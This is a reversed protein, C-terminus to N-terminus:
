EVDRVYLVVPIRDRLEVDFKHTLLTRAQEAPPRDFPHTVSHHVTSLFGVGQDLRITCRRGDSWTLTLQRHHQTRERALVNFSSDADLQRLLLEAVPRAEGAYAWDDSVRSPNRRGEYGPHATTVQIRTSASLGGAAGHLGRLLEFLIRLTLPSRLYRDQYHVQALAPGSQIREMLRPVRATILTWLRRGVESIDHRFSLPVAVERFTGQPDTRIQSAPVEAPLRAASAGRVAICRERPTAAAWDEGLTLSSPDTVAWRVAQGEGGVEGIAEAILTPVAPDAHDGDLLHLRTGTAELLNALSNAVDPTLRALLRRPLILRTRISRSENWRLLDFRLPWTPPDWVTPDGGVYLRIENIDIRQTERRLALLLPDYELASSSGFFRLETPLTLGDLVEQSLFDYARRHDLYDAEFQTDFSLLCGHCASDCSRPCRLIERARQLLSPLAPAAQAVYGAGGEATDFLFLSYLAEGTRSRGPAAAYGIERDDVGLSQALAQRLAVALSLATTPDAVPQRTTPNWLQLEFVDTLASSGFFQHRKIAWISGNGSCRSHGDWEKGGRLRYHNRLEEPLEGHEVESATRGCRLCVAYGRRSRGGSSQFIHGESSYRYSGAESRPLDCLPTSGASIWSPQPAIYVSQDLHNHPRYTLDVAFGAPKFYPRLVFAPEQEGCAPCADPRIAHDGTAGCGNCRWACRFSQIEPEHDLDDPLAQWNLTVGASRYVQKDLVVDAGPAYERIAQPLERTPYGRSRFRSERGGEQPASPDRQRTEERRLQELTTYIFPVLGMPFGYGPLFGLAALEKLLYERSLRDLQREVALYGAPKREATAKAGLQSRQADLARWEELWRHEVRALSEAARELLYAQPQGDLCSRACLQALGRTLREDQARAPDLLWSHLQEVPSASAGRAVFFWGTQLQGQHRHGLEMLFRNLVLSNIHRQVIRESQLSVHPIHIPSTVPWLPNSFVAEGHPTARCMTLSLSATEGRRGARGARQLFNSPGPPANNMAVATLGGIDVGMEMTTSCSLVNLRGAKFEHEAERLRDSALQASHEAVLFLPSQAAIRDTFETWLGEDRARQVTPDSDLWARIEASALKRGSEDAGFPHRLRPMSLTRCRGLELRLNPTLYPTLGLFTTSLARLTVPCLNVQDLACIECDELRLLYGQQERRLIRLSLLDEWAARLLGNVESRAEADDPDLGLGRAMLLALNPQRGVARLLPWRVTDRPPQEEDPACLWRRRVQTGMWRLHEQDIEVASYARVYFDLSIRLFDRWQALTKGHRAWDPPVRTIREELMPYRLALLGLTEVTNQRKPRRIFERLLCFRAAETASIGGSGRDRWQSQIRALDPLRALKRVAEELPLRGLPPKRDEELQRQMQDRHARLVADVRALPELAAIARERDALEAEPKPKPASEWTQHYLWSRVYNRESDLQALAAFRATGQRSDSFTITRRGEYPLDVPNVRGTQAPPTHELLTPIAVELFFNGGARAPRFLEGSEGESEGCRSCRLRDGRPRLLSVELGGQAVVERTTPEILTRQSGVSGPRCLLRSHNRLTRRAGGAAAGGDEEPEQEAEAEPEDPDNEAPRQVLRCSLDNVQEAALLYEAGCSQCLALEYAPADCHECRNHRELFLAGFPWDPDDLGCPGRGPCSPRCCAWLGSQTRHFLHGRLPLLCGQENSAVRCLDLVHLTKDREEATVAEDTRSHLLGSLTDICKPGQILATRVARVPGCAALRQFREAPTLPALAALEPLPEDRDLLEPPLPPERRRGAIVDVRDIPIGAVDALFQRLREDSHQQEDSRITASTAIFRVEEPRCGFAHLVRRLLLAVEAAQSGVYTHAEDLVIWRLMGQSRALIPQDEPRVLMYELMTANSVLIPPPDDWLRRRSIVQEPCDREREASEEYRTDGNYLCFRIRGGFPRSWAALRDRQSNILANLPYLFLAQVGSLPGAAAQRVLDDLIPILFCETKGSSTGSTVVVSRAPTKKLANWAQLQHVYPTVGAPFRLDPDRVGDMADVLEPQLLRGRLSGITEDASAWPFTAEFLPDALFGGEQGPGTALRERVFRALSPSVPGLKSAMARAARRSLAATVSTFFDTTDMSM